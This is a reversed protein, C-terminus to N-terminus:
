DATSGPSIASSDMETSIIIISWKLSSDQKKHSEFFLGFIQIQPQIIIVKHITEMTSLRLTTEQSTTKDTNIIHWDRYM